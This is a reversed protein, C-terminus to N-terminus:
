RRSWGNISGVLMKEKGADGRPSQQDLTKVLFPEVGLALKERYLGGARNPTLQTKLSQRFHIIGLIEVGGSDTFVDSVHAPRLAM